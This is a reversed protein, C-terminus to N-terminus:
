LQGILRALRSGESAADSVPFLAITLEDIGMSLLELLRDRIKSEDGFVLMSEIFSDSVTDIEQPTYGAAVFMQRYVSRTPYISMAQRGVQLATARDKTFAIPVWAVLLPRERGAATASASMAPLATKLLYPIPCMVPLAGDAVEGALRFAGPGLAAIFLPVQSSAQLSVDTTFYRGRHHIEGQQLLPRLVQAYERLYSLPSEMEVGYVSKAFAPSSTGIGLRLRGAALANLSLAQQALQVPHHSFIQVIATGLKLHTTRMAAAALTTLLDPNWPPSGVWIHDVGAEEIEVLTAILRAPHTPVVSLGVRERLSRDEKRQEM